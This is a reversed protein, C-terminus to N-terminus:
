SNEIELHKKLLSQLRLQEEQPVVLFYLEKGFEEDYIRQGEGKVENQHIQKRADKYNQQIDKMESFTLNTKINDGL